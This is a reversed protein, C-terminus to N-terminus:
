YSGDPLRSSFAVCPRSPEGEKVWVEGLEMYPGPKPVVPPRLLVGWWKLQNRM